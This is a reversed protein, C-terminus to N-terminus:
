QILYASTEQKNSGGTACLFGAIFAFTLLAKESESSAGESIIRILENAKEDSGEPSPKSEERCVVVDEDEKCVGHWKRDKYNYGVGRIYSQNKRMWDYERNRDANTAVHELITMSFDEGYQDFDAQMDEVPHRHSRLANIHENFRKDVHCSSGIYVRGTVNHRIAYVKRPYNM